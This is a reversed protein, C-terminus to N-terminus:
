ERAEVHRAGDAGAHGDRHEDAAEAGPDVREGVFGRRDHRADGVRRSPNAVADRVRAALAAVRQERLHLLRRLFDLLRRFGGRRCVVLRARRPVPAVLDLPDLDDLRREPCRVIEPNAPRKPKRPWNPM